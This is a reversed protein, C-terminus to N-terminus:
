SLAVGGLWGCRPTCTYNYQDYWDSLGSSRIYGVNDLVTSNGVYIGVHGYIKGASTHPHTNVAVIMGPQIQSWSYGCYWNYMDCANGSFSGVGANRFVNTVWRACLGSGPSPTSYAASIVDSLSGTGTVSTSSSTASSTGAAAAAAAAAAALEADREAMLEEVEDSLSEVLETAEQQKAAADALQAEQEAELAELEDLQAQLEDRQAELEAQEAELEAKLDQVEAIMEEDSETIKDLYYIYSALEEFSTSSLLLELTSLSGAKYAAAMRNGLAEQRAEIRAQTEAVEAEKAAVEDAKAEVEAEKDEVEAEKAEVEAEKAAIDEELASIQDSVAQIEEQTASVEAAIAAYEEAIAELEEQAAEYAAEAEELAEETDTAGATRPLLTALLGAAVVGGGLLLAGRRSVGPAADAGEHASTPSLPSM